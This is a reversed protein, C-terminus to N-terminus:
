VFDDDANGEFSILEALKHEGTPLDVCVDGVVLRLDTCINDLSLERLLCDQDAKSADFIDSTLGVIQYLKFLRVIMDLEHELIHVKCTM